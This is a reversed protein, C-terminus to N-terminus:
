DIWFYYHDVSKDDQGHSELTYAASDFDEDTVEKLSIGNESCYLCLTEFLNTDNWKLIKVAEDTTKKHSFNLRETLTKM